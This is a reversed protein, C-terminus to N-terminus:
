LYELTMLPMLQVFSSRTMTLYVSMLERLIETNMKKKTSLKVFIVTEKLTRKVLLKEPTFSNRTQIPTKTSVQSIILSKFALQLLSDKGMDLKTDGIGSYDDGTNLSKM